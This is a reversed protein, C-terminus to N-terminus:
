LVKEGMIKNFKKVALSRIKKADVDDNDVDIDPKNLVKDIGGIGGSMKQLADATGANLGTIESAKRSKISDIDALSNKDRNFTGRRKSDDRSDYFSVDSKSFDELVLLNINSM